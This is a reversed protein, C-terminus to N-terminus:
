SSSAVLREDRPSEAEIKVSPVYKRSVWALPKQFCHRIIELSEVLASNQRATSDRLDFQDLVYNERGTLMEDTLNRACGKAINVRHSQTVVRMARLATYTLWATDIELSDQTQVTLRDMMRSINDSMDTVFSRFGLTLAHAIDHTVWEVLRQEEDVLGVVDEVKDIGLLDKLELARDAYRRLLKTKSM